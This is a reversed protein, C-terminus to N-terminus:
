ILYEPRKNTIPIPTGKPAGWDTGKHPKVKGKVPHVRKPYWSSTKTYDNGPHYPKSENKCLM